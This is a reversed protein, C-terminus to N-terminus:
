CGQLWRFGLRIVGHCRLDLWGSRDVDQMVPLDADAVFLWKGVGSQKWMGHDGENCGKWGVPALLPSNVGSCCTASMLYAQVQLGGRSSIIM